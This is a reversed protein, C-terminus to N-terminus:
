RGVLYPEGGVSMEKVILNHFVTLTRKGAHLIHVFLQYGAPVGHHMAVTDYEMKAVETESFGVFPVVYEVSQLSPYKKHQPIVIGSMDAFFHRCAELTYGKLHAEIHITLFNIEVMEREKGVATVIVACPLQEPMDMGILLRRVNNVLM